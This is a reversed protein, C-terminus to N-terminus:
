NESPTEYVSRISDVTRGSQNTVYVSHYSQNDGVTITVFAAPSDPSEFLSIHTEPGSESGDLNGVSYNECSYVSYGGQHNEARITFM